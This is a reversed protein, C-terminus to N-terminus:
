NKLHKKLSILTTATTVGKTIDAIAECLEKYDDTCTSPRIEIRVNEKRDKYEQLIKLDKFSKIEVIPRGDYKTKEDFLGNKKKM